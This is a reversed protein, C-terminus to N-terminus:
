QKQAHLFRIVEGIECKALSIIIAAMERLATCYSSGDCSQFQVANNVSVGERCNRM